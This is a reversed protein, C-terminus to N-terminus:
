ALIIMIAIGLLLGLKSFMVGTTKSDNLAKECLKASESRALKTRSLQSEYDMSGLKKFFECIYNKESKKLYKVSFVTDISLDSKSSTKINDSYASLCKSFLGKVSEAYRDSVITIDDKAYTMNDELASLFGCFDKLYAYRKDYYKKVTIGLYTSVFCLAGGFLLDLM